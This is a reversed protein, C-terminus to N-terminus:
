KFSKLNLKILPFSVINPIGKHMMNDPFEFKPLNPNNATTPGNSIYVQFNNVSEFNVIKADIGGTFKNSKKSTLDFRASIAHAPNKFSPDDKLGSNANKYGNYRIVESMTKVDKIKSQLQRVLKARHSNKSSALFEGYLHKILSNNLDLKTENLFARNFSGFFSEKVLYDSSDHSIIRIPNQELLYFLEKTNSEEEEDNINKKELSKNYINGFVKYDLIMWQSSYTGSNYLKFLQTWEKGTRSFRTAYLVRLFNPIFKEPPKVYRFKDADIIEITTELILLKNNTIYFDDTSSIAAPYGSFVMESSPVFYRMNESDSENLYEGDYAFKYHKFMRLM